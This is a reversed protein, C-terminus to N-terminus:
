RTLMGAFHLLDTMDFDGVPRNDFRPLTPKFPSSTNLISQKDERLIRVFTEVVIRGGVAGLREGNKQVEAEKLIYYWLPTQKLLLKNAKLLVAQEEPSTDQLLESETLRAVGMARAVAQGSPLRLAQGRLLNRKALMQMLGPPNGPLAELGKALCTDIKRASNFRAGEMAPLGVVPRANFYLNFDVVWNSFVPLKDGRNFEFVQGLTAAGTNNLSFPKLQATLPGNIFYGNRIISHGFRYAAVSFEVPMVFRANKFYRIGNTLVDKVLTKGAIRRVFDHLVIWQYHQIVIKKVDPFLSDIQDLPFVGGNADTKQQIVRDLVANHFRIFAHHVQSVLLNEDNRPDGIIATKDSTRPLDDNTPMAVTNDAKLSGGPQTPTNTGVLLRIGNRLDGPLSHDYLFVDVAPGRGYVADLELIPTRMNPISSAHQQKQIDSFVDLTIDHDIFQGLYTYGAPIDSNNEAPDADKDGVADGLEELLARYTAWQSKQAPTKAEDEILRPFMYGFHDKCDEVTAPSYWRLPIRTGHYRKQQTAAEIEKPMDPSPKKSVQYAGVQLTTTGNEGIEIIETTRTTAM